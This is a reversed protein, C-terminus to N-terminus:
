FSPRNRGSAMPEAFLADIEKIRDDDFEIDQVTGSAEDVNWTKIGDALRHGILPGYHERIHQVLPRAHYSLSSMKVSLRSWGPAWLLHGIVAYTKGSSEALTFTFYRGDRSTTRQSRMQGLLRRAVPDFASVDDIPVLWGRIVPNSSYDIIVEGM